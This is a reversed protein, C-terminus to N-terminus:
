IKTKGLIKSSLIAKSVLDCNNSIDKATPQAGCDLWVRLSVKKRGKILLEENSFADIFKVRKVFPTDVVVDAINQWLIENEFEITLDRSILQYPLLAQSKKTSETFITQDPLVIEAFSVENNIDFSKLMAPLIQGYSGVVNNLRQSEIEAGRGTIYSDNDYRSYRLDLSYRQSVMDLIGKLKFLSENGIVTIALHWTEDALTKSKSNASYARALEFYGYSEQYYTNNRKAVQLHSSLLSNRLFAQEHSMPNEIALVAKTDVGTKQLDKESVFSYSTIEFLGSAVLDERMAMLGPLMQHDITNMPPLEPLSDPMNEYGVIKAAEEILDAESTVDTRWWPATVAIIHNFTQLYRRVGRVKGSNNFDNLGTLVVKGKDYSAELVQMNGMYMGVHRIGDREKALQKDEFPRELFILDGAKLADLAVAEGNDYQAKATAPISTGILDYIYQTLYSCDFCTTGHTKFSSGLVYPKDLHKKAENSLSFHEADFGRNKLGAIIQKEDLKTGLVAEARRLRLGIHRVWPWGYLQDNPESVIKASCIQELLQMARDFGFRPLPLPLGKEFRTSAETRIGHRLASRRVTTKDFNAVELVIETTEEDVETSVGGMVGALGIPGSSDAIVLDKKDLKRNVGDLTSLNENARAFRVHMNGKLKKADYAHSPQGTELMVFNTIDVIVNISRMGASELNEVLWAPTTVNNNIKVVASIFRQCEGIEKVKVFERNKYVISARKPEIVQNKLSNASIERALGFVSLMDWRNAPTKVDLVDGLNDIDCLSIGLPLDPDLELLGTHDNNIGLEAASALMGASKEGRIERSTIEMGDPLKSGPAVYAVVIGARVNPAGCVVRIKNKGYELDVLKLKDANPHASVTLVKATVIKKDLEPPKIIEEIEVETKELAEVIEDTSLSKQLYSNLWNISVRM